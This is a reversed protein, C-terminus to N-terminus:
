VKVSVGPKPRPDETKRYETLRQNFMKYMELKEPTLTEANMEIGKKIQINDNNYKIKM